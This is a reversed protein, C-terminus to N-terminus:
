CRIILASTFHSACRSLHNCHPLSGLHHRPEMAWVQVMDLIAEAAASELGARYDELLSQSVDRELVWSDERGDAWSVLYEKGSVGDSAPREALV